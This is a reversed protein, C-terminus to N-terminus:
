KVARPFTWEMAIYNRSEGGAFEKRDTKQASSCYNSTPLRTPSRWTEGVYERNINYGNSTSIGHETVTRSHVCEKCKVDTRRNWQEQWKRSKWTHHRNKTLIKCIRSLVVARTFYNKKAMVGKQRVRSGDIFLVNALILAIQWITVASTYLGIVHSRTYLAINNFLLSIKGMAVVTVHLYAIRWRCYRETVEVHYMILVIWHAVNRGHMIASIYCM